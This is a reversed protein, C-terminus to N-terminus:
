FMTKACRKLEDVTEHLTIDGRLILVITGAISIAIQAIHLSLILGLANEISFGYRQLVLVGAAEYLGFGGPLAPIM